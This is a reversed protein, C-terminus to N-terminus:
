GSIHLLVAELEQQIRNLDDFQRDRQARAQQWADDGQPYYDRAHFEVRALTERAKQLGRWADNYDAVLMARGTGNLHITPVPATPASTTM